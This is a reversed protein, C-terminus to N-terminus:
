CPGVDTADPQSDIQRGIGETARDSRLQEVHLRIEDAGVFRGGSAEIEARANKLYDWWDRRETPAGSLARVTVEVPGAPLELKAALELTGDAKLTGQVVAESLGM